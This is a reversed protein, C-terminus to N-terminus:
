GTPSTSAASNATSERESAPEGTHGSTPETTPETRQPSSSTTTSGTASTVSGGSTSGTTASSSDASSAETPSSSRASSTLDWRPAAGVSEGSDPERVRRTSTPESEREGTPESAREGTPESARVTSSTSVEPGAAPEAARPTPTRAGRPAPSDAPVVPETSGAVGTPSASSTLSSSALTLQVGHNPMGITQDAHWDIVIPTVAMAGAATTAAAALGIKLKTGATALAVGAASGGASSGAGAVALAGAPVLVVLAGAHVRLASFVDRLQGHAARCTPCRRLHARVKRAQTGTVMGVTYGGLKERITRCRWSDQTVAVHEQLYAARLGLRARRALAATANSSLGFRPAIGAPKGGEVETQWLVVRWREPLRSFASAILAQEATSAEGAWGLQNTLEEDPTPVERRAAQWEWCVRRAVTLLYARASDRPGADRRLAQLVRFFTEATIDEAEASDTSLGRAVRRVAAVHREYLEGFAENGGDEGARLRQLLAAEEHVRRPGDTASGVAGPIHTSAM